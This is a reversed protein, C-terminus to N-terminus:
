LNWNSRRSFESEIGAHVQQHVAMNLGLELAYLVGKQGRIAKGSSLTCIYM